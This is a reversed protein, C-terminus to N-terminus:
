LPFVMEWEENPWEASRVHDWFKGWPVLKKDSDGGKEDINVIELGEEKALLRQNGGDLIQVSSSKKKLNVNGWDTHVLPGELREIKLESVYM